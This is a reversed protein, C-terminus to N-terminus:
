APTDHADKRESNHHNKQRLKRECNAYESTNSFMETKHLELSGLKKEDHPSNRSRYPFATPPADTGREPPKKPRANEHEKPTGRRQKEARTVHKRTARQIHSRAANGQRLVREAGCTLCDTQYTRKRLVARPLCDGTEPQQQMGPNPSMLQARTADDQKVANRM